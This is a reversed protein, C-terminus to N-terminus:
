IIYNLYAEFLIQATTYKQNNKSLIFVDDNAYIINGKLNDIEEQILCLLGFDFDSNIGPYIRNIQELSCPRAIRKIEINQM